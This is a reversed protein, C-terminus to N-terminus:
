TTKRRFKAMFFGDTNDKHPFLTRYEGVKEFETHKELFADAMDENEQKSLTCTSYVLEGGAKVYGKAVDLIKAQTKCLVSIDEEKRKWKIDPKKRIVGLGSCPADVLVKDFKERYMPNEVTADQTEAHINTIGLRKANELILNVKHPHIDWALVSGTNGMLEALHTTKGGPAACTDLVSQNKRPALLISTLQAGIDQVSILGNRFMDTDAINVSEEIYLSDQVGTDKAACLTKIHKTNTKLPNVRVALPPQANGAQLLAECEKEGYQKTWMNVIWDPYSYLVGMKQSKETPLTFGNRQISRLVANVFKAASFAKKKTLKVAEDLVAHAPIRELFRLQYVSMRLINRVSPTLDALARSAANQIQYDVFRLNQITGYAINTALAKDRRDLTSASLANKVALDAYADKETIDNLIALALKRPM